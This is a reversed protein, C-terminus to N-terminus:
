AGCAPNDCCKRSTGPGNPGCDWENSECSPKWACARKNHAVPEAAVVAIDAFAAILAFLKVQM